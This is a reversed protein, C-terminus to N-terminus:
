YNDESEQAEDEFIEKLKDKYGQGVEEFLGFDDVLKWAMNGYEEEVLQKLKEKFAKEEPEYNFNYGDDGDWERGFPTQRYIEGTKKFYTFEM